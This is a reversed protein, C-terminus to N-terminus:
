LNFNLYQFLFNNPRSRTHQAMYQSWTCSMQPRAALDLTNQATSVIFSWSKIHFTYLDSVRGERRGAESMKVPESEGM